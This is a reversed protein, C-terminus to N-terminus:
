ASKDEVQVPVLSGEGIKIIKFSRLSKDQMKKLLFWSFFHIDKFWELKGISIKLSDNL